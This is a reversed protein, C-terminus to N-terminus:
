LNNIEDESVEKFDKSFYRIKQFRRKSVSLELKMGDTIENGLVWVENAKGLMVIDMFLANERDLKKTDDLFPFMLHPTIPIGGKNYVFEAFDSAKKVNEKIDGSFPACVYVLPKFERKM